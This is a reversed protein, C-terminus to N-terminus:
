WDVYHFYYYYTENMYSLEDLQSLYLILLVGMCSLSLFMVWPQSQSCRYFLHLLITLQEFLAAFGKRM